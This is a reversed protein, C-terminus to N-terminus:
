RRHESGDAFEIRVAAIRDCPPAQLRKILYKVTMSDRLEHAAQTKLVSEHEVHRGRRMKRMLSKGKRYGSMVGILTRRAVIM